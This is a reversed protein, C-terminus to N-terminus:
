HERRERSAVIAIARDARAETPSSSKAGSCCTHPVSCIQATNPTASATATVTAIALKAFHARRDLKALLSDGGGDDNSNRRALITTTASALKDLGSHINAAISPEAVDVM